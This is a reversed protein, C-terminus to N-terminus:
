IFEQQSIFLGHHSMYTIPQYLTLYPRQKVYMCGFNVNSHCNKCVLVKLVTALGSTGEHYRKPYLSKKGRFLASARAKEAM